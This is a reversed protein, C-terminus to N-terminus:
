TLKQIHKFEKKNNIWEEENIWVIYGEANKVQYDYFLKNELNYKNLIAMITGGHVILSASKYKLKIISFIIKNFENIIRERFDKQNEGSPFPLRGSSELWMKYDKDNKLDEYNKNEFRGFDCEKLDDSIVLKQNKYIINATQIARKYPSSYIIDAKPYSKHKLLDIGKDILPEDTIGIYRKELNGKTISHRILVIKIM